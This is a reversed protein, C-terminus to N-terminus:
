KKKIGYYLIKIFKDIYKDLNDVRNEVFLPIELGKLINLITTVVEDSDDFEFVSMKKGEELIGKILDYEKKDINKRIENIFPLHEFLETKIATYFNSLEKMINMRSLIYAKLKEDPTNHRKIANILNEELKKAEKEIIAKFIDEKNKFYYYIFTKGKGVAAGIDDLTTKKFGYKAFILSSVNIIQEKVKEHKSLESM